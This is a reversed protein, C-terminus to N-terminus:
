ERANGTLETAIGLKQNRFTQLETKASDSNCIQPVQSVHIRTRETLVDALEFFLVLTNANPRRCKSEVFTVVSGQVHEPMEWVIELTEENKMKERRVQVNIYTTANCKTAHRLGGGCACITSSTYQRKADEIERRQAEEITEANYDLTELAPAGPM